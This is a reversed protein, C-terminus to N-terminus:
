PREAPLAQVADAIVYGDTGANGVVVAARGPELAFTGLSLWAGGIPAAERQDVTRRTEGGAAIVTVPANSARNPHAPYALRLEYTGAEEVPIEFRASATGKGADGDHRYGRHVYPATSTSQVWAGTLVAAEDDVVLGSLGALVLGRPRDGPATWSLVQGAEELSPRLEAYDLAQLDRDGGIALRAALGASEGLVLFVPEMRISGFAIHSASLCVPVLLNTCEGRAPVISRYSIPYPAPVRVQVDGENRASGGADVYRQVNHSDMTYSGLGISDPAVRAGECDAQTMVYDSVMRRAERVYLQHPWNGNGAFEDRALGWRAAESRVEEPVRPHNALTWLFGQQYERHDRVIAAREAYSAEPYAYNAGIHDTSFGHNNNTDTKRNPMPASSWPVERFGAEFYRLLLEYRLEDYGEPRAFPVRNAPVDTLCVRFNYAQVRRDGEGDAGPGGAHVGPLLGSAPDGPVRYPDVDFRFQHHM